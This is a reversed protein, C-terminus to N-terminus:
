KKGKLREQHSLWRRVGPPYRGMNAGVVSGAVSAFHWGFGYFTWNIKKIFSLSSFQPSNKIFIWDRWTNRPIGRFAAFWTHWDQYQAPHFLENIGETYDVSQRFQSVFRCSHSHSVISYPEFQITLGAQIVEDAWLADEAFRVPHFPHEAWVARRLASSTDSFYNYYFRNQLFEEKTAPMKKELRNEGGTQWATTLQRVLSPSANPRPVHRSFVGAVQPDSFPEILNALWNENAPTADQTLYVLFKADPHAERAGLNRTEGHNFTEPPIKLVRVEPYAALISFTNDRSGSDIALVEFEFDTKQSRVARLIEDLYQGANKLLLIISVLIM